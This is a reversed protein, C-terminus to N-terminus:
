PRPTTLGPQEGQLGALFAAWAAPAFALAPGTPAKSDRVGVVGPLNDTVEVCNGGSGGSRTSKRWIAGALDTM